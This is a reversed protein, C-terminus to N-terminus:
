ENNGKIPSEGSAPQCEGRYFAWEDCESGDSFKCIGSQSGDDATKIEVTGGKQECNVSAPNAIGVPTQPMITPETTTGPHCKVGKCQATPCEAFECNPGQRGVSSGDSCIKAEMTCAGRGDEEVKVFPNITCGALILLGVVALLFTIKKM